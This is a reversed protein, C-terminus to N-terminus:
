EIKKEQSMSLEGLYIIDTSRFLTNDPFNFSLIKKIIEEKQLFDLRNRKPSDSATEAVPKANKRIRKVRYM